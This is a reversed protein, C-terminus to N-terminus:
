LNKILDLFFQNLVKEFLYESDSSNSEQEQVLTVRPIIARLNESLSDGEYWGALDMDKMIRSAGAGSYQCVPNKQLFFNAM